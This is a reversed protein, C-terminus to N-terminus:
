RDANDLIWVNGSLSTIPIVLRDRAVAMGLQAISTSLMQESSEFRTVQFAAGNPRGTAPDVRRGWVNLSGNRNSVFYITRGDPSWRAKDDFSDVESIKTWAGGTAAVVHITSVEAATPKITNFVIWRGDPSFRGQWVNAGPDAAVERMSREARPADAVDFLCLRSLARVDAACRGLITRGDPSWDQATAEVGPTTLLKEEQRDLSLLAIAQADGGSESTFGRRRYAITAGDPSWHPDVLSAGESSLLLHDRGDALSRSWLEHRTGRVIRYALRSGDRTVDPSSADVGQVTLPSSAGTLVGRQPDFPLSWLRTQENQITFALRRGDASLSLDRNQGAGTTLREPGAIWRLSGPDIAIRWVNTVGRSAGEFYLARGSPAWAFSRLQVAISEIERQVTPAIPSRVAETGDGITTTWLSWGERVHNGWVSLRAGDPHWAIHPWTFQPLLGALIERTAGTGPDILWVRPSERVQVLSSGIALIKSGDPSWAPKFGVNALRRVAGGAAPAV